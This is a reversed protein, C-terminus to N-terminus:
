IIYALLKIIGYGTGTLISLGLLCMVLCSGSCGADGAYTNM